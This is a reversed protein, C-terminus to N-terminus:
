LQNLENNIFNILQEKSPLQLQYKSVFLQQNMGAMAYEVMKTGKETCLLIGIAANDDSLREKDNYYAVYSNLQSLYKHKFQDVKLEILVHCKLIRNYFVLDVHYYEDDILIRKQRAEFCFGYGLELLFEQLNDIIAQELESEEILHTHKLNLFEFIYHSKISDQPTIPTIKNQIEKFAKSYDNSLGFREYTLSNISRKLEKVSPTTKLILLEYFKRKTEEEIKILEVFHTFSIQLLCKKLYELDEKILEDTASQRIVVSLIDPLYLEDTISQSKSHILFPFAKTFLFRFNPYSLYFQRCLKLNTQGLGKIKIHQSINELLNSGYVARDEGNQEFEVIYYGVLWNRMTLSTNVAKATQSQIQRNLHLINEILTSFNM